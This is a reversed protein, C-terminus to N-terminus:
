APEQRAGFLADPVYRSFLFGVYAFVVSLIVYFPALFAGAAILPVACLAATAILSGRRRFLLAREGELGRDRETLKLMLIAFELAALSLLMVIPFRWREVEDAWILRVVGFTILAFTFRRAWPNGRAASDFASTTRAMDSGPIM